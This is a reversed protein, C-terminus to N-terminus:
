PTDVTARADELLTRMSKGSEGSELAETVLTQMRAIRDRRDQGLRILNRVYPPSVTIATM